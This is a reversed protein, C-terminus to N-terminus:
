SANAKGLMLDVQARAGSIIDDLAKRRAITKVISHVKPYVKYV